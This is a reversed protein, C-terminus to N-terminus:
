GPEDQRRLFTTFFIAQVISKDIPLNTRRLAYWHPSKHKVDFFYFIAQVISKDIPLNTHRLAYWHLSKHKVDFFLFLQGPVTTFSCDGWFFDSADDYFLLGLLFFRQCRRLVAIDNQQMCSGSRALMSKFFSLFFLTERKVLVKIM